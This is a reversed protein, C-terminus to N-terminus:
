LHKNERQSPSAKFRDPVLLYHLWRCTKFNVCLRTPVSRVQRFLEDYSWDAFGNPSTFTTQDAPSSLRKEEQEQKMQPSEAEAAPLSASYPQFRSVQQVDLKKAQFPPGTEDEEDVADVGGEGPELMEEVEQDSDEVKLDVRSRHQQAAPFVAGDARAAAAAQQALLLQAQLLHKEEQQRQLQEMLAELKVGAPSPQPCGAM